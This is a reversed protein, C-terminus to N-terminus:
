DSDSFDMKLFFETVYADTPRESWAKEWATLDDQPPKQWQPAREKGVHNFFYYSFAYDPHSPDWQNKM